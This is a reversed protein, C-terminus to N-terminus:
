APKEAQFLAQFLAQFQTNQEALDNHNRSLQRRESFGEKIIGWKACSIWQM